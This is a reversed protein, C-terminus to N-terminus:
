QEYFWFELVKYFVGLWLFLNGFAFWKKTKEGLCPAAKNLLRFSFTTILLVTGFTARGPYHAAMIMAGWSLIAMGLLVFDFFDFKLKCVAKYIAVSLIAFVIPVVMYSFFSNGISIVRYLVTLIPSLGLGVETSRVYNGPAIILFASGIANFISGTIMWVPCSKKVRIRYVIIALLGLFIAPGMNENSWGVMLGLPITIANLWEKKKECDIGKYYIFIFIFQLVGMYLYNAVGSQWLFTEMWSVNFFILGCYIASFSFLTPKSLLKNSFFALLLLCAVNFVDIFTATTFFLLQLLTHAVTRGGWNFYHWIQSEIVDNLTALHIGTVLNTSYLEDDTYWWMRRNALFYLITVTIILFYPLYLEILRKTNKSM